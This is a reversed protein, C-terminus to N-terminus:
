FRVWERRVCKRTQDFLNSVSISFTSCSKESKFQQFNSAFSWNILSAMETVTKFTHMKLSQCIKCVIEFTWKQGFLLVHKAKFNMIQRVKDNRNWNVGEDIKM